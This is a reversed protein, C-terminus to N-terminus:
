RRWALAQDRDNPRRPRPRARRALPRRRRTVDARLTRHTTELHLKERKTSLGPTISTSRPWGLVRLTTHCTPPVLFVLFISAEAPTFPEFPCIISPSRSPSPSITPHQYCTTGYRGLYWPLYPYTLPLARHLGATNTITIQALGQTTGEWLTM